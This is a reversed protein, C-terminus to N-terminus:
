LEELLRLRGFTYGKLRLGYIEEDVNGSIETLEGVMKSATSVMDSRKQDNVDEAHFVVSLSTKRAECPYM